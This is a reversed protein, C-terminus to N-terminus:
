CGNGSLQDWGVTGEDGGAQPSCGKGGIGSAALSFYCPSSIFTVAFAFFNMVPLPLSGTGATNPSTRAEGGGQKDGWAVLANIRLM